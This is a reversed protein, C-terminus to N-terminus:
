PSKENSWTEIEPLHDAYHEAAQLILEALTGEDNPWPYPGRLKWDGIKLKDVFEQMAQQTIRLFGYVEPWLQEERKAAMIENWDEIDDLGSVPIVDPLSPDFIHRGARLMRDEWDAVHGVVDKISWVGVATQDLLDAEDFHELVALFEAQNQALEEKIADPNIARELEARWQQIEAAHQREHEAMIDIIYSRITIIRDKRDRRMDIEVHDLSSIIDLIQLHTSEITRLVENFPKDRWASVSQRNYTEVEVGAVENARNQLMLPLTKLVRQDWGVVHALVDKLTWAGYIPTETLERKSLGQISKLLQSRSYSLDSIIDSIRGM